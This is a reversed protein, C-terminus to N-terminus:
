GAPKVDVSADVAPMADAACAKLNELAHVAAVVDAVEVPGCSVLSSAGQGSMLGTLVCQAAPSLTSLDQAACKAEALGLASCGFLSAVLAFSFLVALKKM